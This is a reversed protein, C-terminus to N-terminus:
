SAITWEKQNVAESAIWRHKGAPTRPLEDVFELAVPYGEVLEQIQSRLRVTDPRVAPDKLEISLLVSGDTEQKVRYRRVAPDHEFLAEIPAPHLYRGSRSLILDNQRGLVNQLIAFGHAPIQLPGDTIDGIGYRLLPFASNTLVSVVIEHRGDDTRPVAEVIALDERIRLTRDPWEGALFGCEISGYEVVTPAGFAQETTRRIHPFAPEGALFVARLAASQLKLAEAEVALLYVATTYGYIAAPQFQEIRRVYERLTEPSLYYASLRLRNRLTDLFPQRMRALYGSLGPAFSAAHGWLYVTRDFIDVDWSAYFRYRARMNELHAQNGWYVWTPAGTSGGTLRWGGREARESRFRDRQERVTQKQLVPIRAQFEALTSFRPPVRSEAALARYYPVHRVAHDWLVNLRELQYAEIEARLWRERASLLDLERYAHRFRPLHKLLTM